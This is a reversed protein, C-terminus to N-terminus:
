RREVARDNADSTGELRRELEDAMARGIRSSGEDILRPLSASNEMDSDQAMPLSPAPPESAVAETQSWFPKLVAQVEHPLVPELSNLVQGVIKGSTSAFIPTRSQPALSVVFLTVVLGVFAGELGGLIMGLLRDFAEFKWQRLTTRVLWAALFVGGSVGAYVALLALSRAVLPEGPFHPALQGSLPYAVLYGLVLSAISALQWTVGRIAGWLMGGVVVGIMAADYSTM